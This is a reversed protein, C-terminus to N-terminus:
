RTAAGVPFEVLFEAKMTELAIELGDKYGPTTYGNIAQAVNDMTRVLVNEDTTDLRKNFNLVELGFHVGNTKGFLRNKEEQTLADNALELLTVKKRTLVAEVEDLITM